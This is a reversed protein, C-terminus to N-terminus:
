IFPCYKLLVSNLNIACGVNRSQNESVQSHTGNYHLQIIPDVYFLKEGRIFSAM